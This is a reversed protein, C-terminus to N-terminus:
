SEVCHQVIDMIREVCQTWDPYLLRALEKVTRHWDEEMCHGIVAVSMGTHDSV